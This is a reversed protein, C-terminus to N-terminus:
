SGPADLVKYWQSGNWRYLSANGSLNAWVYADNRTRAWIKGLASGAPLNSITVTQWTPQSQAAVDLCTACCIAALCASVITRFVAPTIKM